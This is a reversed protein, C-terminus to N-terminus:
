RGFLVTLLMLSFLGVSIDIIGAGATPTTEQFSNKVARGYLDQVPRYNDVMTSNDKFKLMRLYKMQDESIKVSDKFVTWTVVENCGPTTLSGSYRFFKGLTEPLAPKLKFPMINMTSETIVNKAYKLFGYAPNDSGGVEIFVGLVALGDSKDVAAGINPYKTNYSVFHIEAPYAKNDMTHESGQSKDSGWHLHYQVTTYVGKLGGGSVNFFKESFDVQLTHGNNKLTYNATPMKDYNTLKFPDMNAYETEAMKINIPSQKKGPKCTGSWNGPGKPGGVVYDWDASFVLPMLSVCLFVALFLRDM